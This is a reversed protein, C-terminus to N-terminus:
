NIMGEVSWIAEFNILASIAGAAVISLGITSIKKLKRLSTYVLLALGTTGVLTWYFPHTTDAVATLGRICEGLGVGALTGAGLAARWGTERLWATAAGIFPGGIIGIISFFLPLYVYGRLEHAITFGLVLSVFSLAGLAAAFKVKAKSAWVLLVTPITWGSLSNAFSVVWPPLFGQAYSTLGGLVLSAVIVIGTVLVPNLSLTKPQMINQGRDPSTVPKPSQIFNSTEVRLIVSGRAADRLIWSTPNTIQSVM